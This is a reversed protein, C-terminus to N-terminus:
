FVSKSVSRIRLQVYFTLKPWNCTGALCLRGWVFFRSKRKITHFHLYPSFFSNKLLESAGGLVKGLALFYIKDHEHHWPISFLDIQTWQMDWRRMISMLFFRLKRKITFCHHFDRFFTNKLLESAGGMVNKPTLFYIKNHEPHWPICFLDIQTWWMDRRCM